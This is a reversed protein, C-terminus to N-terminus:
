IAGGGRGGGGGEREGERRGREDRGGEGARGEVSVQPNGINCEVLKQFALSTPERALQKKLESARAILEGRM